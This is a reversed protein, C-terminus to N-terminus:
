RRRRGTLRAARVWVKVQAKSPAREMDQLDRWLDEADVAALAPVSDVGLGILAGAMRSGMGKHLSLNAQQYASDLGTTGAEVHIVLLEPTSVGAAVLDAIVEPGLGDLEELLPRRAQVAPDLTLVHTLGSFLLMAGFLRGTRPRGKPARDEWHRGGRAWHCFLAYAAFAEVALAPFGLFGLFPMEFLKLEEFGPVTYIWKARAWFNLSEWVGGALLGGALLRLLRGPRGLELDALISPAGLRRNLVDPIGFTAGWVMWFAFRPSVLPLVVCALGFALLGWEVARSVRLPRWRYAEFWGLAAFLEAGFFCAPLVTAFAAFAFLAQAVESHPLFVYYWNQLRLNYAEFLCWYPVSWFMMAGLERRRGGIFSRGQLCWIASDILLLYGMWAFLFWLTNFFPADTVLFWSGLGVSGAGVWGWWPMTKM